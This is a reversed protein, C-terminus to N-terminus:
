DDWNEKRSFTRAKGDTKAPPDGRGKDPVGGSANTTLTTRPVTGINGTGDNRIKQNGISDFRDAM